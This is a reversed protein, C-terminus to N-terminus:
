LFFGDGPAHPPPNPRGPSPGTGGPAASGVVIRHVGTAQMAAVIARTGPATVGSEARSRPGLGSLVADAGAVASELVAPDPASLDATFTRVDRSLRTPDRLVATVEHGAAVARDLSQRGMGGPAAFITLKM